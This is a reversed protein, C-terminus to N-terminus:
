GLKISQISLHPRGMKATKRNAQGQSEKGMVGGVKKKKRDSGRESGEKKLGRDVKGGRILPRGWSVKTSYPRMTSSNGNDSATGKGVPRAPFPPSPPPLPSSPPYHSILMGSKGWILYWYVEFNYFM